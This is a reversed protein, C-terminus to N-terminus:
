EPKLGWSDTLLFLKTHALAIDLAQTLVAFADLIGRDRLDTVTSTTVDVGFDPSLQEVERRAGLPDMRTTRVLALFPERLSTIVADYGAAEGPKEPRRTTIAESAGLLPRCNGVVYGSEILRFSSQLASFVSYKAEIRDNVTVGGVLINAVGGKLRALRQQLRERVATDTAGAIENRISEARIEIKSPDGAGEILTTTERDILVRKARGLDSLTAGELRRGLEPTLLTAGTLIALDELLQRGRSFGDPARVGVAKVAGREFNVLLAALAEGEIDDAILLLPRQTAAVAELISLISGLSTVTETTVLVYCDDLELKNDASGALYTDSILGRSFRAGELRQLANPGMAEEVTIIGDKGVYELADVIFNGLEASQSATTAVQAVTAKSEALSKTSALYAKANTVGLKLGEIVDGAMHGNDLQKVGAEIMSAALVVAIKGGDGVSDDMEQAVSQIERVGIGEHGKAVVGSAILSGVRTVVQDGNKLVVSMGRGRPGIAKAVYDSALRIGALVQLKPDTPSVLASPAHVRGLQQVARRIQNCTAGLAAQLNGDSRAAEYTAPTLGVLDTPLRLDEGRPTVIFSRQRGLRGVFLGLEFVVNDRAVAYQQGRIVALDDPTFVFVGFDTGELGRMLGELSTTSLEFVGQPWVTIEAEYDLNEQIAYAIRLGETSSGIFLRPKL